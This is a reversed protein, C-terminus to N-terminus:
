AQAGPGDNFRRGVAIEAIPTGSNRDVYIPDLDDGSERDVLTIPPEDFGAWEDGWGLMAVIVPHLARGKDTLHYEFRDPREQYKTRELVGHEVLTTLRSTLTNRSVGLSEVFQDFRTAGFLADRVILLTWADGVVELTQAVSCNMDAVSRRRM